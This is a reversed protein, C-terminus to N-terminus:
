STVANVEGYHGTLVSGHVDWLRATNDKSATALTNGNPSFAVSYVTGAHGSLIVPASAKIPDTLDWLRVTDDYSGTALIHGDPDFALAAIGGAHGTLTRLASPHHPDTIDWLWITNDFSGTALTRRDPSFAASLVRDTHGNLDPLPRPHHRDTIDWLRVPNDAGVTALTNGDPSFAAATVEKRHSTLTALLDPHRPDTIDWLRATHDSSATALTHGDPNFELRRITDTHGTLTGVEHPHHPDAVDWLRATHDANSTALTRGDPSFAAPIVRDAPNTVTALSEPHHPDTVDWLRITQDISATALTRGNPSFVAAYVTSTHGTLQTAYPTGFTSLLSGRAEPTPALRYAALGLQAALAPNTTRLELATGAVQRSLAVDRQRVAIRQQTFAYGAAAVALVLLMSLVTVARRRRFRDRLISARLFSRATPSLEVRKTVLDRAQLQAGTDTVAAALQGREWLRAHPRGNDNWETAVHEIARRARLASANAAIAQALPPWVSLFAEHTVGIVSTGNDTDTTLLRQAIFADLEILVPEPLEAHTIRWRTPRGQEDVTVLRLLGAIVQEHSRGSAAIAKALAADAQRTLAGQVGALQRYRAASLRGGRTIGDALQALTFALLPLAEGGDTDEVLRAALGDDLAIGALGAPKEIVLRLAERGLPRLPFPHTPLVALAPDLLLQDLFEPRLTAVVRVPGTLVSRLLEAFRAREGAPTLTLLEEFQDVVVLLHRRPGDPAIALLEEALQALDGQDLQNRVRALTWDLDAQRAAATLERALSTVPDAGPLIPPLVWWGPEEAMVPGLGARVLSSKGCGSPGVVLLVAGEAQQAPSRLLGALQETEEARGFFVRRYDIDLPRLGPFPSRDDSWAADVHRLAEFLAARAVERGPKLDIHQTSALLPHIVRPEPCLPLLRIGRSRAAGVEATCWMSELYASTVLCVVADAWRLREYLRQEWEEGAPVGDRLHQYQFVKHGEEVLWGRVERALVVDGSAYSLFVKAM